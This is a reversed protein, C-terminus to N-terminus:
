HFIHTCDSLPIPMGDNFPCYCIECIADPDEGVIKKKRKEMMAENRIKVLIDQPVTHRRRIQMQTKSIERM